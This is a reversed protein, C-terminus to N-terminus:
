PHPQGLRRAGPHRSDPGARRLRHVHADDRLRGADLSPRTGAGREPVLLTDLVHLWRRSVGSADRWAEDAWYPLAATLVAGSLVVLWILQLWLLLIPFASVAGFVLPNGRALGWVRWLRKADADAGVGGRHRWDASARCMATPTLAYLAM